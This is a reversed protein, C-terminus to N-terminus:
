TRKTCAVHEPDQFSHGVIIYISVEQEDTELEMFNDLQMNQKSIRIHPNIVSLYSQRRGRSDM